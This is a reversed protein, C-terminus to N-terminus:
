YIIEFMALLPIDNALQSVFYLDLGSEPWLYRQSPCDGPAAPVAFPAAALRNRSCARFLLCYSCLSRCGAPGPQLARSGCLMRGRAFVACQPLRLYTFHPKPPSASQVDATSRLVIEVEEKGAFKVDEAEAAEAAPELVTWVKAVVRLM